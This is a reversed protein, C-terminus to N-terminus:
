NVDTSKKKSNVRKSVTSGLLAGLLSIIAIPGGVSIMLAVAFALPLGLEHSFRWGNAHFSEILLYITWCCLPIVTGWLIRRSFFSITTSLSFAVGLIIIVEIKM